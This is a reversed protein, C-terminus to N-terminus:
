KQGKSSPNKARDNLKNIYLEPITPCRKEFDIADQLQKEYKAKEVQDLARYKEQTVQDLTSLLGAVSADKKQLERIFNSNAARLDASSKELANTTRQREEVLQQNLKEQEQKAAEAKQKENKLESLWRGENWNAGIFFLTISFVPICAYHIIKAQPIVGPLFRTLFFLIVSFLAILPLIWNLVDVISEKFNFLLDM